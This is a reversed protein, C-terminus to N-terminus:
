WERFKIEANLKDKLGASDPYCLISRNGLARPGVESRGRIYGIIKRDRCLLKALAPLDLNISPFDPDRYDKDLIDFGQYTVDINNDGYHDAVIGTTLGCDGSNPAVYVNYGMEFLRQNVPINLACVV